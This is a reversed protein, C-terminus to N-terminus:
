WSEMELTVDCGAAGFTGIWVDVRGNLGSLDYISLKPQLRGRSDDDFYWTGNSDRVMLTTDCRGGNGNRSSWAEIELRNYSQMGTINFSFTPEATYYGVASVGYGSCASVNHPGGASSSYRDASWMGTGTGSAPTGILASTPCTYQTPTPDPDPDPTPDPDPDPDPTPDPDPDPTPDPDPDPDPTPDPDPDPTPDPDPDPTPDPDPDPTPDPDPDPTGGGTGPDCSGGTCNEGAITDPQVELHSDWATEFLGGQLEGQVAGTHTVLAADTSASVAVGLGVMAAMVVVYEVTAAGKEDRLFRHYALPTSWEQEQPAL